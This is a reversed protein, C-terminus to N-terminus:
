QRACKWEPSETSIELTENIAEKVEKNKNKKEKKRSHPPNNLRELQSLNILKQLIKIRKSSHRFAM